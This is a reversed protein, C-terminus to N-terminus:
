LYIWIKKEKKKLRASWSKKIEKEGMYKENIQM